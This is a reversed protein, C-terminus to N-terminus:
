PAVVAGTPVSEVQGFVFQVPEVFDNGHFHPMGTGPLMRLRATTAQQAEMDWEVRGDPSNVFSFSPYTNKDPM